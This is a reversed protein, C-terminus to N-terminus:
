EMEERYERKWQELMKKKYQGSKSEEEQWGEEKWQTKMLEWKAAFTEYDTGAMIKASIVEGKLMLVVYYAELARKKKTLRYSKMFFEAAAEFNWQRAYCVAINYYTRGDMQHDKASLYQKLAKEYRGQKLYEDGIRIKKESESMKQYRDYRKMLTSIEQPLFYNRCSIVQLFQERASAQRWEKLEELALEELLWQFLKEEIGNQAFFLFHEWICYCLEEYTLIKQHFSTFEYPIKAEKTECLIIQGM